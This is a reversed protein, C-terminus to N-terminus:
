LTEAGKEFSILIPKNAGDMTGHFRAQTRRRDTLTM